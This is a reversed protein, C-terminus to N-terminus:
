STVRFSRMNALSTYYTWKGTSLTIGSSRKKLTIPSTSKPGLLKFATKSNLKTLVFSYRGAKLAKVAKGKLTLSPVGTASVTAEITGRSALSGVYDSSTQGTGKGGGYTVVVKSPSGSALTTFSAKAVTPQNLDSAIYTSNPQFNETLVLDSVCGASMTTFFNIGPGTFQFQPIGKCATMDPGPGPPDPYTAFPIPSRIDLQYAGPPISTVPKGADDVISLTCNMTYLAYITPAATTATGGPVLAAGIAVAAATLVALRRGRSM